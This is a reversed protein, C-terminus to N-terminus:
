EESVSSQEDIWDTLEDIVQKSVNGQQKYESPKIKGKGAFFLHNLKPYLKFSVHERDGLGKKWGRFDEETVQYDRGGQLIYMPVDLKKAEEVPDYSKMDRWWAASFHAPLKEHSTDNTIEHKRLYQVKEKLQDLEQQEKDSRDGDVDAIYKNQDLIFTEPSRTPGAMAILGGPNEIRRGIRPIMMGGISHGLVFVRDKAVPDQKKLWSHAAVADDVTIEDVTLSDSRKKMRDPFAYTRKDYRLVAIGSSSLGEALDKYPKNPGVTEDRDLPGSGHVLVVAPYPGEGKPVTLTGPIDFEGSSFTVDRSTFASTDVYDPEEYASYVAFALIKGDSMTIKAKQFTDEYGVTLIVQRYSGRRTVNAEHFTKFEGLGDTQKEWLPQIQEPSLKSQVRAHLLDFAKQFNDEEQYRVFKRATEVHAHEPSNEDNTDQAHATLHGFPFGNVCIAIVLLSLCLTRTHNM